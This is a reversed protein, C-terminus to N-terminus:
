PESLNYKWPILGREEILYNSMHILGKYCQSRWNREDIRASGLLSVRLESFFQDHFSDALKEWAYVIRDRIRAQKLLEPAPIGDRKKMNVTEHSPLLNWLDNNRLAVFPFAHDIHM